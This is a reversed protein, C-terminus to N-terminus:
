GSDSVRLLEPERITFGVMENGELVADLATALVSLIRAVSDSPEFSGSIQERLLGEHVVIEVKYRDELVRVVEKVPTAEFFLYGTWELAHTLNVAVPARPQGGQSVSSMQGPVLIVPDEPMDESALAVRGRELVVETKEVSARVGFRTGLVTILAGRTAVTFPNESHVVDFFANGSFSVHRAFNDTNYRLEAEDVLLVTSGDPLEAQDVQGGHAVITRQDGGRLMGFVAAFGILLIIAAAMRWVKPTFRLIRVPQEWHQMFAARDEEIRGAIDNLAPYAKKAQEMADLCAMVEQREAESLEELRGAQHLVYLVFTRRDPLAAELRDRLEQRVKLWHRLATRLSPDREVAARQAPTLEGDLLHSELLDQM